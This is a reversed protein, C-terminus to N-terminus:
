YRPRKADRDDYGGPGERKLDGRFGGRGPGFGGGPPGYGQQPPGGFGGPGSPAQAGPPGFGNAPADGGFGGGHYGVGGGRGGRCITDTM